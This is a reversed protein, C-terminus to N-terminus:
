DNKKERKQQNNNLNIKNFTSFILKNEIYEFIQREAHHVMDLPNAVGAHFGGFVRQLTDYDIAKQIREPWIRKIVGDTLRMHVHEHFM